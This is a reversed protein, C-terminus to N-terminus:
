GRQRGPLWIRIRIRERATRRPASAVARGLPDRRGERAKRLGRRLPPMPRLRRPLHEQHRPERKLPQRPRWRQWPRRSLQNRRRTASSSSLRRAAAMITSGPSATSDPARSEGLGVFLDGREDPIGGINGCAVYDDPNAPNHVNLAHKGSIIDALPVPVETTSVAVPIPANGFTEPDPLVVEVDLEEGAMGAVWEPFELDALPVAPAPDLDACNGLHLHNPFPGGPHGEMRPRRPM